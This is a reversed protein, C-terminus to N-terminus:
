HSLSSGIQPECRSIVHRPRASALALGAGPATIRRRAGAVVDAERFALQQACASSARFCAEISAGQIYDGTLYLGQVQRLEGAIRDLFRGHHATYACLGTAFHRAVFRRRSARFPVHRALVSEAHDVLAHNSHEGSAFRRFARGSFTYRVLHLDEVGYAGANSVVEDRGFVVARVRPTFVPQDYEALVLTVPYYAVERLHSALGPLVGETLVAAAPAPTALIVGAGRLEGSSGDAHRVRVGTVRGDEVLLEDTQTDLRVDYRARFADLLPTLGHTFQEYTDLLMRVNSTLNGVYVEDPEAGNMRVTMPRLIRECFAASFYADASREDHREGLRRAQASGLYGCSGDRNVTLLLRAFRVVDSLSAGRALGAMTRWRAGADFTELRGDIVQSSNLGFYEFPHHGLSAAFTRFLTYQRGINKGGCDLTREGLRVTGM